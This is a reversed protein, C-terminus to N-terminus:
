GIGVEKDKTMTIMLCQYTKDTKDENRRSMFSGKAQSLSYWADSWDKKPYRRAPIKPIMDEVIVVENM